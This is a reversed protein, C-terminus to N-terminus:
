SFHLEDRKCAILKGKLKTRNVPIGIGRLYCNTNVIVSAGVSIFSVCKIIEM